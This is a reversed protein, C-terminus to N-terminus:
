AKRQRARLGLGTLGLAMLAWTGPEPVATVNPETWNAALFPSAFNSIASQFSVGTASFDYRALEILSDNADVAADLFTISAHVTPNPDLATPVDRRLGFAFHDVSSLDGYMASPTVSGLTTRTITTGVISQQEFSFTVAGTAYDSRMALNLRDTYNPGNTGAIVLALSEGAQLPAYNWVSFMEFGGSKPLLGLATGAVISPRLITSRASTGAPTLNNTTDISDGLRFALGGVGYHTGVFDSGAGNLEAGATLTSAQYAGAVTPFGSANREYTLGTYPDGNNFNDSGRWSQSPGSPSITNIEFHRLEPVGSAAHTATIAGCAILAVALNRVAFNM